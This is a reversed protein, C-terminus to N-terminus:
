CLDEEIEWRILLPRSSAWPELDSLQKFTTHEHTHGHPEQWETKSFVPMHAVLDMEKTKGELM